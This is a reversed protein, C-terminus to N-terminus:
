GEGGDDPEKPPAKRQLTPSDGTSSPPTRSPPNSRPPESRPPPSSKPPEYKPAPPTNRVPPEYKREPPTRTVPPEYRPAPPTNRVPPEYKPSPYTRVPPEEKRPPIYTTSGGTNNGGSRDIPKQTFRGNSPTNGGPIDDTNGGRSPGDTRDVPKREFRGGGNNFPISSRNRNETPETGDDNPQEIGTRSPPKRVPVRNQLIVEKELTSDLPIGSTRQGAGTRTPPGLQRVRQMDVSMEGRRGGGPVHESLDTLYASGNEGSLIQGGIDTPAPRGDRTRGFEGGDVTIVGSPPITGTPQPRPAGGGTTPFPYTSGSGRNDNNNGRGGRRGFYGCNFDFYTSYYGLPYWYIRGNYVAISVLAPQWWSRNWRVGAYPSWYWGSSLYIWRGHHYTTWGWPEDNVWTWGYPPFWTWRGYRYPSWDRYYGTVNQYPRWVYGYQPTYMWDGHDNLDEAGFQDTDYYQGYYSNKLKKAISKDRDQSWDNLDDSFDAALTEWEGARSGTVYLKASRGERVTFGSQDSYIRAEGGDGVSLQVSDTSGNGADIRYLGTSKVAVTTGPADVEFFNKRGDFGGIRLIATGSMLSVAVGEDKLTTLIIRSNEAIRLYNKSDLQIEVRSREELVIEDGEALPLNLTAKEWETSGARRINAEGKLVSIRAVKATVEPIRDDAFAISVLGIVLLCWILPHTPTHM